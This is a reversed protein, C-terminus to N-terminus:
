GHSPPQGTLEGREDDLTVTRIADYNELKEMNHLIPLHVFLEPAQALEPPPSEAPLTRTRRALDQGHSPRPPARKEVRAVRPVEQRGLPPRMTSILALTLVAASALAPVLFRTWSGRSAERDAAETRARRLVSQELRVPVETELPLAELGDLLRGTVLM